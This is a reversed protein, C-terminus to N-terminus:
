RRPTRGERPLGITPTTQARHLPTTSNTVLVVEWKKKYEGLQGNPEHAASVYAAGGCRTERKPALGKALRYALGLNRASCV